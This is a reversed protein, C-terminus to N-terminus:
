RPSTGNSRRDERNEADTGWYLHAGNVCKPNSCERVHCAHLGVRAKLDVGDTLALAYRHAYVPSDKGQGSTARFIPRRTGKWPRKMPTNYAGM